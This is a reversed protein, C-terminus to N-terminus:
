KGVMELLLLEKLRNNFKMVLELKMNELGAIV